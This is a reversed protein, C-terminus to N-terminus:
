ASFTTGRRRVLLLTGGGLLVLLSGAGLIVPLKSGTKPLEGGAGDDEDENSGDPLTECAVGDGDADLGHPDSPDADYVAQAEGQSAFDACDLDAPVSPSPSPSPGAPQVFLVETGAVTLNTFLVAGASANSADYTLGFTGVAGDAAVTLSLTGSGDAAVFATPAAANTDADPVDYYFMRIAGADTTAGDVLEYDVTIEDGTAVPLGLNTTEASTGVDGSPKSLAVTTDDVVESESPDVWGGDYDRLDWGAEPYHSDQAAAPAAVALALLCGVTVAGWRRFTM